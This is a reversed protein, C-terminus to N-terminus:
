VLSSHSHVDDDEDKVRIFWFKILDITLSQQQFKIAERFGDDGEWTTVMVLCHSISLGPMM